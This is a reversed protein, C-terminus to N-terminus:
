DRVLSRSRQNERVLHRWIDVFRVATTGFNGPVQLKKGSNADRSEAPRQNVAQLCRRTKVTNSRGDYQAKREGSPKTHPHGNGIPDTSKESRNIPVTESCLGMEGEDRERDIDRRQASKRRM